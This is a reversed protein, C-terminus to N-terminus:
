VFDDDWGIDMLLWDAVVDLGDGDVVSDIHTNMVNLHWFADGVGLVVATGMLETSSLDILKMSEPINELRLSGSVPNGSLNLEEMSPPLHSLSITGTLANGNMYLIQLTEPVADLPTSGAFKNRGLYISEIEPPSNSFDLSGTLLNGQLNLYRIKQPLHALCLEGCLDNDELSLYILAPPLKGSPLTGDIHARPLRVTRVKEPLWHLQIGRLSDHVETLAVVTEDEVKVNVWTHIDRFAGESDKFIAACACNSMVLEMKTQDPLFTTDARFLASDDATLFLRIFSM